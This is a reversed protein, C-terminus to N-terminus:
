WAQAGFFGWGSPKLPDDGTIHFLFVLTESVFGIRSGGGLEGGRGSLLNFMRSKKWQFGM